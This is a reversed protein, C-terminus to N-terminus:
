RRRLAPISGGGPYPPTFNLVTTIGRRRLEDAVAGSSDSGSAVRDMLNWDDSQGSAPPFNRPNRESLSSSVGPISENRGYFVMELPNEGSIEAPNQRQPRDLNVGDRLSAATLGGFGAGAGGRPQSVRIQEGYGRSRLEDLAADALSGGGLAVQTLGREDGLAQYPQPLEPLPALPEGRRKQQERLAYTAARAREAAAREETGPMAFSRSVTANSRAPQQVPPELSFTNNERAERQLGYFQISPDERRGRLEYTIPTSVLEEPLPTERFEDLNVPERFTAAQVQPKQVRTPGAPASRQPQLEGGPVLVFRWPIKGDAGEPQAPAGSGSLASLDPRQPNDASWVDAQQPVRGLRVSPGSERDDQLFNLDDASREEGAAWNLGDGADWDGGAAGREVVAEPTGRSRFADPAVVVRGEAVNISFGTSGPRPQGTEDYSVFNSSTLWDEVKDRNRLLWVQEDALSQQKASVADLQLQLQKKQDEPISSQLMKNIDNGVGVLARYEQEINSNFKKGRAKPERALVADTFKDRKGAERRTGQFEVVSPDKWTEVGGARVEALADLAATETSMGTEPGSFRLAIPYSSLGPRLGGEDLQTQALQQKLAGFATSGDAPAEVVFREVLRNANTWPERGVDRTSGSTAQDLLLVAEFPNAAFAQPREVRLADLEPGSLPQRAMASRPQIAQAIVQELPAQQQYMQYVLREGAGEPVKYMAASGGTGSSEAIDRGLVYSRVYPKLFQEFSFAGENGPQTKLYLDPANQKAWEIALPYDRAAAELAETTLGLLNAASGSYGTKAKAFEMLPPIEAQLEEVALSPAMARLALAEAQEPEVTVYSGDAQKVGLDVLKQTEQQFRRARLPDSLMAMKARVASDPQIPAMLLHHVLSLNADPQLALATVAGATSGSPVGQGAPPLGRAHQVPPRPEEVGAGLGGRLGTSGPAQEDERMIWSQSYPASGGVASGGSIDGGGDDTRREVGSAQREEIRELANYYIDRVRDTFYETGRMYSPLMRQIITDPDTVGGRDGGDIDYAPHWFDSERVEGIHGRIQDRLDEYNNKSVYVANGKENPVIVLRQNLRTLYKQDGPNNYAQMFAAKAAPNATYEDPLLAEAVDAAGYGYKMKAVGLMPDLRNWQLPESVQVFNPRSLDYTGELQKRIFPNNLAAETVIVPKANEDVAVVLEPVNKTLYADSEPDYDITESIKKDLGEDGVNEEIQGFKQLFSVPDAAVTVPAGGPGRDATVVELGGAPVLEGRRDRRLWQVATGPPTGKPVPRGEEVRIMTSGGRRANLAEVVETLRDPHNQATYDILEQREQPSVASVLRPGLDPDGLLSGVRYSGEAVGRLSNGTGRARPRILPGERPVLVAPQPPVPGGVRGVQPAAAVADAVEQAALASAAESSVGQQKNRNALALLAAGIGGVGLAGLGLGLANPGRDERQGQEQQQKWERVYPTLTAKMQANTPAPLGAAEAYAYYDANSLEM